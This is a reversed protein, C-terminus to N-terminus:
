FRVSMSALDLCTRKRAGSQGADAAVMIRNAEFHQEEAAQANVRPTAKMDTRQHEWPAHGGTFLVYAGFVALPIVVLEEGGDAHVNRPLGFV